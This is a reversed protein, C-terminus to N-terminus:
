LGLDADDFCEEEVEIMLDFYWGVNGDSGVYNPKLKVKSKGLSWVDSAEADKEIRKVLKKALVQTLSRDERVKKADKQRSKKLVLLRVLWVDEAEEHLDSEPTEMWVCPYRISSNRESGIIEDADGYSFYEVGPISEAIAKITAHLEVLTRM